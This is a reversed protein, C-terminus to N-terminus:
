SRWPPAVARVGEGPRRQKPSAAPAAAARAGEGPHPQKPLAAPTAAHPVRPCQQSPAARPAAPAAARALEISGLAGAAIAIRADDDAADPPDRPFAGAQPHYHVVDAANPLEPDEDDDDNKRDVSGLNFYNYTVPACYVTAQNFTATGVGRNITTEFTQTLERPDGPMAPPM